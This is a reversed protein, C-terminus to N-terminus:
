AADSSNQGCWQKAFPKHDSSNVNSARLDTRKGFLLDRKEFGEGVLRHDRDLVHPQKVFQLFAVCFQALGQLM